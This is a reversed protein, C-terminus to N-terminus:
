VQAAKKAKRNQYYKDNLELRKRVAEREEPPLKALRAERRAKRREIIEEPTMKKYIRQYRERKQAKRREANEALWRRNYDGTAVYTALRPLFELESQCYYGCEYFWAILTKSTAAFKSYISKSLEYYDTNLSKAIVAPTDETTLILRIFDIEVASFVTKIYYQTAKLARKIATRKEGREEREILEEEPSLSRAFYDLMEAGGSEKDGSRRHHYRPANISVTHLVNHYEACRNFIM